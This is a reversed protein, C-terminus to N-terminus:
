IKSYGMDIEFMRKLFEDSDDKWGRFVSKEKKFNDGEASETIRGV